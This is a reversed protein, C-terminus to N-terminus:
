TRCIILNCINSNSTHEPYLISPCQSIVSVWHINRYDMTIWVNYMQVICVTSSTQELTFHLLNFMLMCNNNCKKVRVSTVAMFTWFWCRFHIARFAEVLLVKDYEYFCAFLLKCVTLGTNLSGRNLVGQWYCGSWSGESLKESIKGQTLCSGTRGM